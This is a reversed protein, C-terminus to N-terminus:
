KQSSMPDQSSKKSIKKKNKNKKTKDKKENPQISLSYKRNHTYTPNVQNCEIDKSSNM